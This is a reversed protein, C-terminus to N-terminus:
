AAVVGEGAEGGLVVDVGEDMELQEAIHVAGDGALFLEFAPMPLPLDIEDVLAVRRPGVKGDSQAQWGKFQAHPSISGSVLEPHRSQNPNSQNLQRITEAANM